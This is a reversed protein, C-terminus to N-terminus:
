EESAPSRESPAMRGPDGPDADLALLFAIQDAFSAATTEPDSGYAHGAGWAVRLLVPNRCRQSELAAAVYEYAQTPPTVEDLEGPLVLTPPLCDVEAVTHVPSIARLVRREEPNSPDGLESLWRAGLGSRHYGLLDLVPFAYIAAGFLEPRRHVAAPVLSGGASTTEAVIRGAEARGTDLLWEAAALYDDIANPRNERIGARHWDEGLEGGGRTAPLALVGGRRMWEWAQARFWPAANWGGFGYGYMLVPREKDPKVSRHHSLVIPAPGGGSPYQLTKTVIETPDYPLEPRLFPEIEATRLNLEYVTGPDAFGTSVFFATEVGQRGGVGSWISGPPLSFTTRHTGDSRYMRLAWAGGIRYPVVIGDGAAEPASWTDIPHRWEPVLSRPSVPKRDLDFAVIRGNPADRNTEMWLESGRNGVFRWRHSPREVLPVLEAGDLGLNRVWVRHGGTRPDRRTVVLWRGDDSVSPTLSAGETDRDSLLEVDTSGDGTLDHFLIREGRPGQSRRPDEPPLDFRDYFFGQGEPLWQISSSGAFLGEISVPRHSGTTLDLLRLRMWRSSVERVGYALWRGDPSPWIRWDPAVGKEALLRRGDVVVREGGGSRVVLDVHTLSPDFRTYVLVEGAPEPLSARRHRMTALISAELDHEVVIPELLARTQRDQSRAWALLEPSSVEKPWRHPDVESSDKRAAREPTRAHRCSLPGLIALGAIMCTSLIRRHFNM